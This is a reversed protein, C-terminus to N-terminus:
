NPVAAGPNWWYGNAKSESKRAKANFRSQAEPDVLRMLQDEVMREFALRAYWLSQAPANDTAFKVAERGINTEKGEIAERVNGVTLKLADQALSVTPGALSQGISQGFRNHDAFLFDGFIGLGGGQLAAASWFESSDMDKPNRGKAVEKAQLVVAGIVTTVIFINAAQSLAGNVNRQAIEEFLQGLPRLVFEIPGPASSGRVAAQSQISATLVSRSQLANVFEMLSVAAERGAVVEVEKPRLFEVGNVNYVESSRVKDWVDAGIEFGELSRQMNLPLETFKKSRHVALDNLASMGVADRSMQTFGSLLSARMTFDSLRSSFETTFDEMSYRHAATGMDIANELILGIERASERFESSVSLKKLFRLHGGQSLGSFAAASRAVGIDSFSSMFASGLQVSALYQRVNSMGRAWIRSQPEQAVGTWNDRMANAFKVQGKAKDSAENKKLFLDEAFKWTADADVGLVETEAIQHSMTDIYGVMARWPDTQSGFREAYAIWADGDKFPIFDPDATRAGIKYAGGVQSVERSAWGGSKIHEYMTGLAERAGAEGLEGGLDDTMENRNILTLVFDTWEDKTAKGVRTQSHSQPVGYDVKSRVFGGAAEYMDNAKRRAAGFAKSLDRAATDGTNQGFRERVMNRLQAKNRRAGVLTASFTQLVDTMEKRLEARVSEHRFRLSGKHSFDEVIKSLPLGADIKAKILRQANANAQVRKVQQDAVARADRVVRAQADAASMDEAYIDFATKAAEAREKDMEGGAVARDMCDKFGSM